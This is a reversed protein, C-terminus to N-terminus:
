EAPPASPARLLAVAERVRDAHVGTRVGMGEFFEVLSETAVNGKAGPAFPCGGLGGASSDFESVGSLIGVLANALARHFTDHFHLAIGGLGRAEALSELLRAVGTPFAAGVTDAISTNRIGLEDLRRVIRVVAAAAVEGEYPCVFATSVYARVRLSCAQARQTVAALRQLSTETDCGLNRENFSSSAATLVAVSDVGCSLARELGDLNPVLATFTVGPVRRLSRFVEEADALQPVRKPSVFSSVEIRRCGAAVLAEVFEIKRKTPVRGPENQLGDRPGVEVLRVSAPLSDFLQLRDTV